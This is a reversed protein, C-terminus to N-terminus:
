TRWGKSVVVSLHWAAYGLRLATPLLEGAHGVEVLSVHTAEGGGRAGGKRRSQPAGVHWCHGGDRLGLLERRLLGHRWAKCHVLLLRRVFPPRWVLAAM